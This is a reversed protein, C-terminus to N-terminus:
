GPAPGATIYPRQSDIPGVHTLPLIRLWALSEIQSRTVPGFSRSDTSDDRHDGMVFYQNPGLVLSRGNRPWDPECNTWPVSATIYPEALVHNNIYVKCSKVLIKDGPVGVVRKIFDQSSDFPSRLIVIDGREPGHFRYPLRLAILYDQNMATPYMSPGLVYVTQVAFTIILYLCLALVSVEAIEILMGKAKHM